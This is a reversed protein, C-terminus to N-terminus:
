IRRAASRCSSRLPCAACDPSRPKCVIGGLDLLAWNYERAYNKPLVRSAFDWLWVADTIRERPEPLAFIRQYIRAVNADLVAAPEGFSVCAVSSAAYRGVYPLSMLEDVTRPVEGAHEAVIAAACRQLLRARTRHLGLPYLIGEIDPVSANAVADATPFRDLLARAIPDVSEARTRALLIESVLVHFPTAAPERWFFSRSRSAGWQLLKRRVVGIRAALGRSRRSVPKRKKRSRM